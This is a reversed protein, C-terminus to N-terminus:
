GQPKVGGTRILYDHSAQALTQLRALDVGVLKGARKRVKGDVFVWSVHAPQATLVVAAVPDGSRPIMAVDNLDVMIIDARRGVALSGVKTELGTTKAGQLTAYEFVDRYNIIINGKADRHYNWENWLLARMQTFLDGPARTETDLSLSPKLGAKLWRAMGKLPENLSSSSLTGGSDAIMKLEEDTCLNCHVHTLDPGLLGAEHLRTVANFNPLVGVHTTMRIGLERAMAFDKVTEEVSSFEIGGCAMALTLLQDESNFYQTKVRRIDPSHKQSNPQFTAGASKGVQAVGHAFIGRIGSDALGQVAADAHAPSNIIHSWDLMTTVGANIAGVAGLLNGIYVDEPRYLPGLQTLVIQYYNDQALYSRLATQWTHRHSDVFGPLVVMGAADVIEADAVDLAPGIAAITAGDILVDGRPLDGTAAELTAVYGGKILLKKGNGPAASEAAMAPGAQALAALPAAALGRLLARRNPAMDLSNELKSTM